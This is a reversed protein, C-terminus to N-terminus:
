DRRRDATAPIRIDRKHASQGSRPDPRSWSLDARGHNRRALHDAKRDDWDSPRGDRRAPRDYAEASGAHSRDSRAAGDGRALLRRRFLRREEDHDYAYGKGYGIDKMLKTPANLIHKPPMLSGTGERKAVCAKQAKYAANSKPATALYLCAQVIALEGEPSGLFDYADKAALCQVLAQPDALGIDEVAFRTLRRLVYLPEEGAVLM